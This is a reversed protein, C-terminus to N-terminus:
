KMTAQTSAHKSKAADTGEQEVRRAATMGPSSGKLIEEELRAVEDEKRM